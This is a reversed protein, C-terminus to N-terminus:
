MTRSDAHVKPYIEIYEYASREATEIITYGAERKSITKMQEIHVIVSTTLLTLLHTSFIFLKM